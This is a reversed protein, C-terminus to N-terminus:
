WPIHVVAEQDEMEMDAEKVEDMRETAMNVRRQGMKIIGCLTFSTTTATTMSTTNSYFNAHM